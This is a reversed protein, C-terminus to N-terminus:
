SRAITGMRSGLTNEGELTLATEDSWIANRWEDVTWTSHAKAWQLRRRKHAATLLPKKKMVRAVYGAAKMTRSITSPSVNINHTISVQKRVSETSKVKSQNMTRVIIRRAREDIKPPRGSRPMDKFSGSKAIRKCVRKCHSKPKHAQAAVQTWSLGSERLTWIKVRLQERNMKISKPM